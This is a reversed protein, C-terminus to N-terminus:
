DSRQSEAEIQELLAHIQATEVHQPAVRLYQRLDQKAAAYQKLHYHILGRDRYDYASDPYLLLLRDLITIVQQFAQQNLYIMKLNTLLRMLFPKPSIPALFDPHWRAAPGYLQRFKAECDAEFLINGGNFPDVFVAMEEILPRILFHGPMGVGAMPFQVRKAVELYVLSLTIPIGLRRDLVENLYSNRPDYYNQRNGAFGLTSLLYGSLVQLMKMPYRETPLRAQVAAAMADLQSLYADIALHPYEEQAIYLAAAALDIQAEPQSIAQYFQQRATPFNM